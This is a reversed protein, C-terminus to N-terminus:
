NRAEKIVGSLLKVQKKPESTFKKLEFVPRNELVGYVYQGRRLLNAVLKHYEQVAARDGDIKKIFKGEM